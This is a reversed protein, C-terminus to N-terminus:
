NRGTTKMQDRQMRWQITPVSESFDELRATKEPLCAVFFKYFSAQIGPTSFGEHRKLGRNKAVTKGRCGKARYSHSVILNGAAQAAISAAHKWCLRANGWGLTAKPHIYRSVKRYLFFMLRYVVAISYRLQFVRVPMGSLSIAYFGTADRITM